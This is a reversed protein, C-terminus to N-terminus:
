FTIHLMLLHKVCIGIQTLTSAYRMEDAVLQFRQLLLTKIMVEDIGTEVRVGMGGAARVWEHKEVHSIETGNRPLSTPGVGEGGGKM